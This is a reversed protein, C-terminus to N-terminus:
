YWLSGYDPSSPSDDGSIETNDVATEVTNGDLASTPEEKKTLKHVLIGMTRGAAVGIISYVSLELAYVSPDDNRPVYCLAILGSITGVFKPYFTSFVNEPEEDITKKITNLALGLMNSATMWVASASVIEWTLIDYPTDDNAYIKLAAYAISFIGSITLGIFCADYNYNWSEINYEIFWGIGAYSSSWVLGRKVNDGNHKTLITSLLGFSAGIIAGYDKREM